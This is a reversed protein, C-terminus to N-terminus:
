ACLAKIATWEADTLAPAGRRANTRITEARDASPPHTSVFALADSPEGERAELRELFAGLHRADYGAANMLQTAIADPPRPPAPPPAAAPWVLGVGAWM